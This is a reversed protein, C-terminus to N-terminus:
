LMPQTPQEGKRKVKIKRGRGHYGGRNTRDSETKKEEGNDGRRSAGLRGPRGRGGGRHGGSGEATLVELRVRESEKEWWDLFEQEVQIDEFKKKEVKGKLIDQEAEQQEIIDALSLQLMPELCSDSSSVPPPLSPFAQISSIALIPQKSQTLPNLLSPRTTLPPSSKEPSNTSLNASGPTAHNTKSIIPTPTGAPSPLLASSDTGNLTTRAPMLSTPPLYSPQLTRKQALSCTNNSCGATAVVLPKNGDALVDRLAVKPVQVPIAWPTHKGKDPTVPSVQSQQLNQKLNQQLDQQKQHKRKEKQSLKPIAIFTKGPSPANGVTGVPSTQGLSINPKQHSAVAAQAMIEKLGLKRVKTSSDTWPNAPKEPTSIPPIIGVPFSPPGVVDSSAISQKGRDINGVLDVQSTSNISLHTHLAISAKGPTNQVPNQQNVQVGQSSPGTENGIELLGEGAVPLKATIPATEAREVAPKKRQKKPTTSAVLPNASQHSTLRTPGVVPIGEVAQSYSTILAQRERASAELMDPYKQLLLIQQGQSGLYISSQCQIKRISRELEGMIWDDLEDLLSHTSILFYFLAVYLAFGYVYQNELMTELNFCIYYLCM